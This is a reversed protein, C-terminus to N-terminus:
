IASSTALIVLELALRQRRAAPEPGQVYQFRRVAVLRQGAWLAGCAMSMMM